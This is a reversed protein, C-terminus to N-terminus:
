AAFYCCLRDIAEMFRENTFSIRLMGPLGFDAGPVTAVAAQNLIDEALCLCDPISRGAIFTRCNLVCYFGGSAPLLQIDSLASLKCFAYQWRELHKARVEAVDQPYRLAEIAGYQVVPDVTLRTHQQIMTMPRILAEPVVCWGVRRTYMRYGKSFSNTVVIRSEKGSDALAVPALPHEKESFHINDYVEDIIVHVHSPLTDLLELLTASGIVNGLPNGPSNLVVAQTRGTVMTAISEVDIEMSELCVPYYLCEVGALMASFRYLPYYPLPILIQDGPQTLILFLNRIISSTGADVLIRSTPVEVDHTERYYSSLATLLEPLGGPCVRRSAIPDRMATSIADQIARRPQLDSIGLTLQIVDSGLEQAQLAAEDLLFMRFANGVGDGELPGEVIKLRNM